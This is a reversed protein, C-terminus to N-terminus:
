SEANGTTQRDTQRLPPRSNQSESRNLHRGGKETQFSYFLSSARSNLKGM